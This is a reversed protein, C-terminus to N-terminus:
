PGVSGTAGVEAVPRAARVEVYRGTALRDLLAVRESTPYAMIDMVTPADSPRFNDLRSDEVPVAIRRTRAHAGLPVRMVHRTSTSVRTDLPISPEDPPLARRRAEIVGVICARDQDTAAVLGQLQATSQGAKHRAAYNISVRVHLSRNGSYEYLIEDSRLSFLTRLVYAALRATRVCASWSRNWCVECMDRASPSCACGEIPKGNADVRTEMDVDVTFPRAVVVTSAEGRGNTAIYRTAGTHIAVVDKTVLYHRLQGAPVNVWQGAVGVQVRIDCHRLIFNDRPAGEPMATHDPVTEAQLQALFSVGIASWVSRHYEAAKMWERVPGAPERVPVVEEPVPSGESAAAAAGLPAETAVPGSTPEVRAASSAPVSM